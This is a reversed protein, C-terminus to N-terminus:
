EQVMMGQLLPFSMLHSHIKSMEEPTYPMGNLLWRKMVHYGSGTVHEVAYELYGPDDIIIGHNRAINGMWRSAHHRLRDYCLHDADSSFLLTVMDANQQILTFGLQSILTSSNEDFNKLIPEIEEMLEELLDDFICSFIKEKSPFYNYISQRSIGAKEAITKISVKHLPQTELCSLMAVKVKEITKESVSTM